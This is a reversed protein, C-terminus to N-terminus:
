VARFKLRGDNDSVKFENGCYFCQIEQGATFGDDYPNHANCEPCDFEFHKGANPNPKEDDDDFNRDVM